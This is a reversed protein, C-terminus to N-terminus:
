GVTFELTKVSKDNLFIEVKYKGLPWLKDNTLNFTVLGSGTTLETEDLKLNPESDEVDVATWVAKVKTDDPANQLQVQAYFVADQAFTTARDKGDKDSSMWADGINATSVSFNCALLMLGIALITILVYPRKITM